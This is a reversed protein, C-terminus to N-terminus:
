EFSPNFDPCEWDIYVMFGCVKSAGYVCPLYKLHMGIHLTKISVKKAAIQTYLAAINFTM